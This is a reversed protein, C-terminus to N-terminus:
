CGLFCFLCVDKEKLRLFTELHRVSIWQHVSIVGMVAGPLTSTRLSWLHCDGLALTSRGGLRPLDLLRPNRSGQKPSMSIIDSSTLHQWIIDSTLSKPHIFGSERHREPPSNALIKLTVGHGNRSCTRSSYALSASSCIPTTILSGPWDVSPIHLCLGQTCQLCSSPPWNPFWSELYVLHVDWWKIV